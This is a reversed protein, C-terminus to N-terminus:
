NGARQHRVLDLQGARDKAVRATVFKRSVAVDDAEVEHVTCKEGEKTEYTRQKLRGTVVVGPGKSVSETVHEAQQKWVNVTLFLGGGDKWEVSTKDYYRPISVM